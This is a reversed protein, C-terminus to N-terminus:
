VTAATAAERDRRWKAAAEKSILVKSGLRMETPGLGQQRLKYYFAVSIKHRSCFENVTFTADLDVSATLDSMETTTERTM